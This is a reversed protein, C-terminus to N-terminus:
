QHTTNYKSINNETLYKIKNSGIIISSFEKAIM